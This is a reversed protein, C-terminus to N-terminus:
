HALSKVDCWEKFIGGSGSLAMRPNLDKVYLSEPYM